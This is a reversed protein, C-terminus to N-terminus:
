PCADRKVHATPCDPCPECVLSKSTCSLPAKSTSCRERHSSQSPFKSPPSGQQPGQLIPLLPEPSPCRNGYPGWQPVQLSAKRGTVEPFPRLPSYSHLAQRQVPETHHAEPYPEKATSGLLYTLTGKRSGSSIVFPLRHHQFYPLTVNSGHISFPCL